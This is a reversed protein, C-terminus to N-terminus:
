PSQHVFGLFIKLLPAVVGRWLSRFTGRTQWEFRCLDLFTTVFHTGGSSGDAWLRSLGFIELGFIAAHAEMRQWLNSVIRPWIRWIQAFRGMIKFFQSYWSTWRGGIQLVQFKWTWFAWWAGGRAVLLESLASAYGRAEMKKWASPPDRVRECASAAEWASVREM